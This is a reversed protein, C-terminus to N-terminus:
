SAGDWLGESQGSQWCSSECKEEPSSRYCPTGVMFGMEHRRAVAYRTKLSGMTSDDTQFHGTDSATGSVVRRLISNSNTTRSQNCSPSNTLARAWQGDALWGVNIFDGISFIEHKLKTRYFPPVKMQDLGWNLGVSVGTRIENAATHAVREPTLHNLCGLQDEQGFLFWASHPPHSADLPLDDFQPLKVQKYTQNAM